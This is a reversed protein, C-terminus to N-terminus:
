YMFAMAQGFPSDKLKGALIRWLTGFFLVVAFTSLGAALGLHIHM